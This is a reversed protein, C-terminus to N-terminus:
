TVKLYKCSRMSFFFAGTFLQCMAIDLPTFAMKQLERIVSGALAVQQKEPKDLKKYGRFQRYLFLSPKGDEDLRPNPKNALCFTQAMCDITTQCSESKIPDSRKSSFRDGRIAQTFAGLIRIKQYRSFRDLFPDNTIAISKFYQQYRGLSLKSPIQAQKWQEKQPQNWLLCILWSVIETPVQCIKFGFPVQQPILTLILHTLESDDHHFDRSCADSVENQAGPFWQSDLCREASLILSKSKNSLNCLTCRCPSTVRCTTRTAPFLIISCPVSPSDLPLGHFLINLVSSNKICMGKCKLASSRCGLFKLFHTSDQNEWPPSPVNNSALSQNSLPCVLGRQQQGGAGAIASAAKSCSALATWLRGCWMCTM